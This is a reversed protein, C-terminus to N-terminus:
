CRHHAGQGALGDFPALHKEDNEINKVNKVKPLKLSSVIVIYHAEVL